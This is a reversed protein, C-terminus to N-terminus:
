AKLDKEKAYKGGIVGGAASGGTSGIGSTASKTQENYQAFLERSVQGNTIGKSQLFKELSERLTRTESVLFFPRGRALFDFMTNPDRNAGGGGFPNAGGSQGKGPWGSLGAGQTTPAGGGGGTQGAAPANGGSSQPAAVQAQTGVAVFLSAALAVFTRKTMHDRR